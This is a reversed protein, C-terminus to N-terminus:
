RVLSTSRSTNIIPPITPHYNFADRLSANIVSLAAVTVAALIVSVFVAKRLDLNKFIASVVTKIVQYFLSFVGASLIASAIYVNILANYVSLSALTAIFFVIPLEKISILPRDNALAFLAPLGYGALVGTAIRIFNNSERLGLYSTLGDFMLPLFGAAIVSVVFLSIPKDGTLRKKFFLYISCIFFGLYIGTCRACLPLFMSGALLSREPLQHCVSRGIFYFFAEM